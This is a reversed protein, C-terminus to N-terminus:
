DSLYKNMAVDLFEEIKSGGDTVRDGVKVPQESGPKLNVLREAEERQIQYYSLLRSFQFSLAFDGEAIRRKNEEHLARGLITAAASIKRILVRAQEAHPGYMEWSSRKWDNLEYVGDSFVITTIWAMKDSRRLAHGFHQGLALGVLYSSPDMCRDVLRREDRFKSRAMLDARKDGTPSPGKEVLVGHKERSFEEVGTLAASLKRKWNM